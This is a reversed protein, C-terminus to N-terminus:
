QRNKLKKQMIYRLKQLAKAQMQSESLNAPVIIVAEIGTETEIATVKVSTGQRVYEFLVEAM